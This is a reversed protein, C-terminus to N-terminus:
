LSRQSSLKQCSGMGRNKPFMGEKSGSSSVETEGTSISSCISPSPQVKAAKKGSPGSSNSEHDVSINLSDTSLRKRRKKSRESRGSKVSMEAEQFLKKQLQKNVSTEKLLFEETVYRDWTSSWGQFHVLYHFEKPNKKHTEPSEVKLIKADYVVRAKTLDPEYCLVRENVSFRAQKNASKM